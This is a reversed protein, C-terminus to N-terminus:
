MEPMDQAPPMLEFKPIGEIVTDWATAKSSYVTLNVTLESCDDLLSARPFIIGSMSSNTSYIPSGCTPCFHRRVMNGADTKKDFYSVDGTITLAAEPVALHTCHGTGSSKRCDSCHCNCVVVTDETSKYHVAGCLCSGSFGVSM